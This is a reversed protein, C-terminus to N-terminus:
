FVGLPGLAGLDLGRMEELVGLLERDEKSLVSVDREVKGILPLEEPKCVTGPEPLAGNQFYNRIAKATCLSPSAISCHKPIDAQHFISYPIPNLFLNSM